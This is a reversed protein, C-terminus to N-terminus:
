REASQLVEARHAHNDNFLRGVRGAGEHAANISPSRARSTGAQPLDDLTGGPAEVIYSPSGEDMPCSIGTDVEPGQDPGRTPAFSAVPDAGLLYILDEALASRRRSRAYRELARQQSRYDLGAKTCEYLFVSTLVKV